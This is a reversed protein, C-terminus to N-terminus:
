QEVCEIATQGSRALLATLVPEPIGYPFRSANRMRALQASDPPTGGKAFPKFSFQKVRSLEVEILRNPMLIVMRDNAVTLLEGNYRHDGGLWVWGTVGAPTTAAPQSKINTGVACGAGLLVCAAVMTQKLM